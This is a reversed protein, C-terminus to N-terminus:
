WAYDPYVIYLVVLISRQGLITQCKTYVIHNFVRVNTLVDSCIYIFCSHHSQEGSLQRHCKDVVDHGM